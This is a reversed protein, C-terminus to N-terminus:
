PDTTDLAILVISECPPFFALTSEPTGEILACIGNM